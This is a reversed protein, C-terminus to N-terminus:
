HPRLSLVGANTHALAAPYDHQRLASAAIQFFKGVFESHTLSLSLYADDLQNLLGDYNTAPATNTILALARGHQALIAEPTM